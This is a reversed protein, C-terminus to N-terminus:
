SVLLSFLSISSPSQTLESIMQLCALAKLSHVVPVGRRASFEELVVINGSSRNGVLLLSRVMNGEDGVVADHVLQVAALCTVSLM